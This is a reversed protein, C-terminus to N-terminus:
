GAAKKSEQVQIYGIVFAEVLLSSVLSKTVLGKFGREGAIFLGAGILAARVATWKAVDLFAGPKGDKLDYVAQVSPFTPRDESAGLGQLGRASCWDGAAYEAHQKMASQAWFPLPGPGVLKQSFARMEKEIRPVMISQCSM